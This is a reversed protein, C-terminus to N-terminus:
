PTPCEGEGDWDRCKKSCYDAMEDQYFPDDAKIISGCSGCEVCRCVMWGRGEDTMLDDLLPLGCCKMDKGATNVPRGFVVDGVRLGKCFDPDRM